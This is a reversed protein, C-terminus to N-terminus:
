FDFRTRIGAVFVNHKLGANGGGPNIFYQVAPTIGLHKNVGIRYYFEFETEAGNKYTASINSYDHPGYMQGVAFGVTDNGRSWVSGQIQLGLDWSSTPTVTYKNNKTDYTTVSPDKWSFRGFVGLLKSVEHDASIGFGYTGPKKSLDNCSYHLTNNSWVYLNYNGKKSPKYTLQLANVGGSDIHDTKTTYYGYSLDFINSLTCSLNLAVRQAPAEIIKDGNFISTIFQANKNKSYRNGTFNSTFDLKGFSIILKNDLCSQQYYLDAIKALELEGNFTPDTVANANAYTKVNKSLGNGNGGKFRVVVKGNNELIKELRLDFVYVETNSGDKPKGVNDQPTGQFVFTGEGSIEINITQAVDISKAVTQAFIQSPSILALVLALALIKAILKRM